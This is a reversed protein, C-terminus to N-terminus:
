RADKNSQPFRKGEHGAQPSSSDNVEERGRGRPGRRRQAFAPQIRHLQDARDEGLRAQLETSAVVDTVSDHRSPMGRGPAFPLSDPPSLGSGGDRVILWLERHAGISPDPTRLQLLGIGPLVVSWLIAPNSLRGSDTWFRRNHRPRRWRRYTAIRVGWIVIPWDGPDARRRSSVTLRTLIRSREPRRTGQSHGTARRALGAARADGARHPLVPPGQRQRRERPVVQRLWVPGPCAQAKAQDRVASGTAQEFYGAARLRGPETPDAKRAVEARLRLALGLYFRWGTRETHEIGKRKPANRRSREPSRDPLLGRKLYWACLHQASPWRPPATSRCSRCSHRSPGNAAQGPGHPVVPPRSSRRRSWATEAM